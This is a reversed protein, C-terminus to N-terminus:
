QQRQWVWSLGVRAELVTVLAPMAITVATCQWRYLWVTNAISVNLGLVLPGKSTELRLSVVNCLREKVNNCVTTAAKVGTLRGITTKREPLYSSPPALHQM